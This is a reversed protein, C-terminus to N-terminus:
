QRLKQLQTSYDFPVRTHSVGVLTLLGRPKSKLFNQLMFTRKQGLKLPQTSYIFSRRTHSVGVNNLPRTAEVEPIKAAGLHAETRTNATLISYDFPGRTHSEGVVASLGRLKSKLFNQLVLTRQVVTFQEGALCRLSCAHPKV